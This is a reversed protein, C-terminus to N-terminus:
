EYTAHPTNLPLSFCLWPQSDFRMLPTQGHLWDPGTCFAVANHLWDPGGTCFPTQGHLLWDPGTMLGHLWAPDISCLGTVQDGYRWDPAICSATHAYIWVPNMIYSATALSFPLWRNQFLIQLGNTRGEFDQEQIYNFFQFYKDVNQILHKLVPGWWQTM